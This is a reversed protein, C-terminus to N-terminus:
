WMGQELEASAPEFRHQCRGAFHECLMKSILVSSVGSFRVTTKVAPVRKKLKKVSRTRQPSALQSPDGPAPKSPTSAHGEVPAAPAAAAEKKAEDPVASDANPAAKIESPEPNAAVEDAEPISFYSPTAFVAENSHESIANKFRAVRADIQTQEVAARPLSTSAPSTDACASSDASVSDATVDSDFNQSRASSSSMSVSADISSLLSQADRLEKQACAILKRDSDEAVVVASGARIAMSALRVANATPRSVMSSTWGSGAPDTATDIDMDAGGEGGKLAETAKEEATTTHGSQSRISADVDNIFAAVAAATTAVSVVAFCRAPQDMLPPVTWVQVEHVRGIKEFCAAVHNPNTPAVLKDVFVTRHRIGSTEKSHSFGVPRYQKNALNRGIYERSPRPDCLKSDQEQGSTFFGDVRFLHVQHSQLAEKRKRSLATSEKASRHALYDGGFMPLVLSMQEKHIRLLATKPQLKTGSEHPITRPSPAPLAASDVHAVSAAKGSKPAAPLPPPAQKKRQEDVSKLVSSDQKQACALQDRLRPEQTCLTKFEGIADLAVKLRDIREQPHSLSELLQPQCQVVAHQAQELRKIRSQVVATQKSLSEFVVAAAVAANLADVDENDAMDALGKAANKERVAHEELISRRSEALALQSRLEDENGLRKFEGCAALAAKLAKITGALTDIDQKHSHDAADHAKVMLSEVAELRRARNKAARAASAHQPFPEALKAASRLRSPDESAEAAALAKTAKELAEKEKRKQREDEKAAAEQKESVQAAVAQRLGSMKGLLKGPKPRPPLQMSPPPPAGREHWAGGPGGAGGGTPGARLDRESGGARLDRESGGRPPGHAMRERELGRGFDFGRVPPRGRRSAPGGLGFSVRDMVGRAEPRREDERGRGQM